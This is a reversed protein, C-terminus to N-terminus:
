KKPIWSEIKNKIIEWFMGMINTGVVKGVNEYISKLETAGMYLAIFRAMQTGDNIIQQLVYAAIITITYLAIKEVTHRMKKASFSEGAKMSAYSGTVFDIAILILLLNVYDKIPSFWLVIVMVLKGFVNILGEIIGLYRDPMDKM